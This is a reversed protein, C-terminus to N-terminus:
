EQGFVLGHSYINPVHRIQVQVQRFTHSNPFFCSIVFDLPFRAIWLFGSNRHFPLQVQDCVVLCYDSTWNRGTKCQRDTGWGIIGAYLKWIENFPWKRWEWWWVTASLRIDDIMKHGFFECMKSIGIQAVQCLEERINRPFPYFFVQRWAVHVKSFFIKSQYSLCFCTVWQNIGTQDSQISSNVIARHNGIAGQGTSWGGRDTGRSRM